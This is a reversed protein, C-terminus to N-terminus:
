TKKPIWPTGNKKIASAFPCEELRVVDVERMLLMSIDGIFSYLKFKDLGGVAIDVDSAAGFRGKKTVSGFLYIENWTYKSALQNLAADIGQTAKSREAERLAEDEQLRKYWLSPYVGSVKQDGCKM